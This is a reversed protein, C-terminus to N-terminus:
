AIAQAIVDWLMGEDFAYRSYDNIPKVNVPVAVQPVYRGPKELTMLTATLGHPISDHFLHRELRYREGVRYTRRRIFSLYGESRMPIVRLVSDYENTRQAEHIVHSTAYSTPEFWYVENTLEGCIITSNIDFSHTHIPHIRGPHGPIPEAPWVNLRLINPEVDFQVFGNPHVRPKRGLAKLYDLKFKM